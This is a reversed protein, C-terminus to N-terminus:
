IVRNTYGCLFPVSLLAMEIEEAPSEGMNAVVEEKDEEVEEKKGEKSLENQLRTRNARKRRHYAELDSRKRLKLSSDM